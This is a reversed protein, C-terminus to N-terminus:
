EAHLNMESLVKEPAKLNVDVKEGNHVRRLGEILIREGDKLGSKVIFVHPQEAAISILRQQLKNDKDIVYVYTKDLIEFTAKQPIILANPYPVTMMINGTGGHRLIKDPNPFTARFEINGTKNDFDAEVTDIVGPQDFVQGNALKLQVKVDSQEKKHHVYDLYEAEPVNFYVWMRSIDSLKTLLDGEDVLSGIRVNLHDVIGDFPANVNTFNLHTEAMRVEAQEKDLKSKALAMESKSVISKEALARTNQYEINAIEAEARSKQVDIEYVNPMIKFMRQGQKVAQGEDVFISQLYGKELSRMEIHRFAHIQSVYEKIISTDKRLPTTAELKPLKEETDESHHCASLLTLLLAPVVFLKKIM